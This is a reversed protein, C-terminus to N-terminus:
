IGGPQGMDPMGDVKPQDPGGGPGADEAGDEDPDKALPNEDTPQLDEPLDEDPILGPEDDFGRGPTESDETGNESM